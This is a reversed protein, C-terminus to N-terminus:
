AASTGVVSCAAAGLSPSAAAASLPASFFSFFYGPLAVHDTEDDAKAVRALLVLARAVVGARPQHLAKGDRLAGVEALVGLVLREDGAELARAGPQEQRLAEHIRAPTGHLHEGAEELDPGFLDEDRVVLEVKRRADRPELLAAADAPVVAQAVDRLAHPRVVVPPKADADAMGAVLVGDRAIHQTTRRRLVARRDVLRDFAGEADQRKAD